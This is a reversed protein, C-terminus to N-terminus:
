SAREVSGRAAARGRTFRSPSSQARRIAQARRVPDLFVVMWNSLVALATTTLLIMVGPLTVLWWATTVYNQGDAILRGWSNGPVGLGLFSLGAETLIVGSIELIALTVLTPVLNPLVHRRLIRHDRAGMARAAEVYEFQRLKLVEARAVRTYLVWRTAILVIVLNRIGPGLAYIIVIVLLLSPFGLFVDVTRMVIDDWMGGYYGALAGLLAGVIVSVAVVVAAIGLSVRAALLMRDLLDRGLPDTGALHATTGGFLYPALNRSTLNMRVAREPILAPALIVAIALALLFIAATLAVVDHRLLALIIRWSATRSHLRHERDLVGTSPLTENEIAAMLVDKRLPAVGM